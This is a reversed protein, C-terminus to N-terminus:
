HIVDNLSLNWLLIDTLDGKISYLFGNKYWIKTSKQPLKFTYLYEGSVVDFVSVDEGEAKSYEGELVLLYKNDITTISRIVIKAPAPSGSRTESRDPTNPIKSKWVVGKEMSIKQLENRFISSAIISTSDLPSIISMNYLPADLINQSYDLTDQLVLDNDLISLTTNYRHDFFDVIIYDEFDIVDSIHKEFDITQEHSLDTSFQKISNKTTSFTFVKDNAIRLFTVGEQFEGPGNGKGGNKLVLEGDRNFKKIKLDGSDFVYINGENDVDLGSIKLLNQNNTESLSKNLRIGVKAYSSKEVKSCNSIFIIFVFIILYPKNM